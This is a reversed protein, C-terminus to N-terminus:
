QRDTVSSLQCAVRVPNSAELFGAADFTAIDGDVSIPIRGANHSLLPLILNDRESEQRYMLCGYDLASEM